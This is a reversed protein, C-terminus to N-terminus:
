RCTVNKTPIYEKGLYAGGVAGGITAATNGNGKGIQNGAVGGAAGGLVLGVINGDDCSPVQPQAAQRPENWSIQEKQAARPKKAAVVKTEEKTNAMHNTVLASAGATVLVLVLAGVGLMIMMKRTM